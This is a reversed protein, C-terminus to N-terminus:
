VIETLFPSTNFNKKLFFDKIIFNNNHLIISLLTLLYLQIHELYQRVLHFQFFLCSNM